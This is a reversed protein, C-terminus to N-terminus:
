TALCTLNQDVIPFFTAPERAPFAKAKRCVV